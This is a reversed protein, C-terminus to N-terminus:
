LKIPEDSQMKQQRRSGTWSDRHMTKTATGWNVEYVVMVVPGRVDPDGNHGDMIWVSPALDGVVVNALQGLRPLTETWVRGHGTHRPLEYMRAAVGIRLDQRSERARGLQRTM